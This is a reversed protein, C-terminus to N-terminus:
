IEQPMAQATEIAEMEHRPDTSFSTRQAREAARDANLL